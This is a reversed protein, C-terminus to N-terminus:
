TPAAPFSKPSLVLLPFFLFMNYFLFINILFILKQVSPRSLVGAWAVPTTCVQCLPPVCDRIRGLWPSKTKNLNKKLIKKPETM